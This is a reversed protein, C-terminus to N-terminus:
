EATTPICFHFTAPTNQYQKKQNMICTKLIEQPFKFKGKEGADKTVQMYLEIQLYVLKPSMDTRWNYPTPYLYM